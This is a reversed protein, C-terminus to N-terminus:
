IQNMTICYGTGRLAVITSQLLGFTASAAWLTTIVMTTAAPVVLFALFQTNPLLNVKVLQVGDVVRIRQATGKHVHLVEVSRVNIFFRINGVLQANEQRHWRYRRKKKILM